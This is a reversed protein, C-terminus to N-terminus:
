LEWAPLRWIEIRAANDDAWRKQSRADWACSDQEFLSDFFAKLFNDNDPKAEHPAGAMLARKKKSWSPPMPVYFRIGVHSFLDRLKIRDHLVDLMVESCLASQFAHYQVVVPRKKWADARTMRPAPVPAIQYLTLLMPTNVHPPVYDLPELALQNAIAVKSEAM